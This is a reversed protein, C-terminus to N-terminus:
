DVLPLGRGDVSINGTLILIGEVIGWIYAVFPGVFICAGVFFIVIQLIGKSTYGLYFNHIGFFGLFIGLLGAILKSRRSNSGSQVAVGCHTCAAAEPLVSSGCNRCFKNGANTAYGCNVCIAANNDIEKGCNKCYM